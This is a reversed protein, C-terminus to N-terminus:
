LVDLLGLIEYVSSIYNFYEELNAYEIRDPICGSNYSSLSGFNEIIIYIKSDKFSILIKHPYNEKLAVIKEMITTSLLYRATVQNDSYVSFSKEFIPSELRVVEDRNINLKQFLTGVTGLHNEAIDPLIVTTGEFSKSYDAIIFIGRFSIDHSSGGLVAKSITELTLECFWINSNNIIVNFINNATCDKINVLNFLESSELKDFASKPINSFNLNSDFFKIVDSIIKDYKLKYAKKVDPMLVAFLFVICLLLIPIYIFKLGYYLSAMILALNTLVLTMIIRDIRNSKNVVKLRLSEIEDIKFKLNLEFFEKFEDLTRM